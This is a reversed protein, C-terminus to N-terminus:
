YVKLVQNDEIEVGQKNIEFRQYSNIIKNIQKTNPTDGGRSRLEMQQIFSHIFHSSSITHSSHVLCTEWVSSVVTLFVPANGEHFQDGQLCLGAPFQFSLLSPCLHLPCSLPLLFPIADRSSVVFDQIFIVCFDILTVLM